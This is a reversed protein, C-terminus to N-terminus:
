IMKTLPGFNVMKEGLLSHFYHLHDLTKRTKAVGIREPSM